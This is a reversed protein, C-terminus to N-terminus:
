SAPDLTITTGDIKVAVPRTPNIGRPVRITSTDAVLNAACADSHSLNDVHTTVTLENSGTVQVSTPLEPCGSSGWATIYMLHPGDWAAEPPPLGPSTWQPPAHGPAFGESYTVVPGPSTGAHHGFSTRAAATAGVVCALAVPAAVSRVGTM